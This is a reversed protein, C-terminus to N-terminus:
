KKFIIHKVNVMARILLQWATKKRFDNRCTEIQNQLHNFYFSADFVPSQRYYHWWADALACEQSLWPKHPGTYHLTGKQMIESFDIETQQRGWMYNVFHNTQFNFISPLLQVRDKCVVNLVDQDNQPYNKKAHEAFLKEVNEERMQKLNMVLFGSNIYEMTSLGVSTPLSSNFCYDNITLDAVAAFMENSPCSNLYLELLDQQFIIDVDSYIVKNYQPFLSPINLRFFATETIHGEIKIKEYRQRVEDFTLHCQQTNVFSTALYIRNSRSLFKTDYLIHIDYFTDAKANALLSAITVGCPIVVNDDIAFIIPINM